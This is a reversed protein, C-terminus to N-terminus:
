LISSSVFTSQSQHWLHDRLYTVFHEQEDSTLKRYYVVLERCIEASRDDKWAAIHETSNGCEAVYYKLERLAGGFVNSQEEIQVENTM